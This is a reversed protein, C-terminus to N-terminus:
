NENIIEKELDYIMKIFIKELINEKKNNTPKEFRFSSIIFNTSEGMKLIQKFIGSLSLLSDKMSDGFEYNISAYDPSYNIRGTKKGKLFNNLKQPFLIGQSIDCFTLSFRGEYRNLSSNFLSDDYLLGKIDVNNFKLGRIGSYFINFYEFISNSFDCQILNSDNIVLRKFYSYSFNLHILNLNNYVLDFVNNEMNIGVFLERGWYPVTGYNYNWNRILEFLYTADLNYNFFKKNEIENVIINGAILALWKDIENFNRKFKHISMLENKFLITHNSPEDLMYVKSSELIKKCLIEIKNIEKQTIPFDNIIDDNLKNKSFIEDEYKEFWKTNLRTSYLKKNHKNIAMSSLLPILLERKAFVSKDNSDGLACEKLLVLLGKLFDITQDTPLGISLRIRAEEVDTSEEIAYKIIVKLYYEALLIEAFSQHQFHLTNEKEGLYSHSLFHVSEIDKFDNLVKRDDRDIEKGEITRCIDAKTLSTQEGSQRKYQWLLASAHLINRYVFEDELCVSKCDDKHKADRTLQNLFSIYVGVKGFDIFNSNSIILKYIMYAFIPRKLESEKLVKNYLEKYLDIKNRKTIRTFIKNSFGSFDKENKLNLALYNNLAFEIYNDFQEKKFGYVSIYNSTYEKSKSENIKSEKIEIKYPKYKTIQEKLGKAIPRSAIIIRNLRQNISDINQIEKIDKIVKDINTESLEGCEDLSDVLFFYNKKKFYDDKIDIQFRFSLYKALAGLSTSNAYKDYENLNIYVPFLGEHTKLYQQALKSALNHLFSTKGKGFDAILFLINNLYGENSNKYSDFYEEILTDVKNLNSEFKEIEKLEKLEKVSKSYYYQNKESKDNTDEDILGYGRIDQWTGFTDQYKLEEGEVFGLKALNKMYILLNKENERIWKGKTDDIHKLFNDHGFTNVICKPINLNFDKVFLDMIDENIGSLLFIKTITEKIFKIAPHNNSENILPFDSENIKENFDKFSNKLTIAFAEKDLSSNIEDKIVLFSNLAQNFGAKMYTNFGLNKFKDKKENEYNQSFTTSYKSLLLQLLDKAENSIGESILTKYTTSDISNILNSFGYGLRGDSEWIELSLLSHKKYVYQDELLKCIKEIKTIPKLTKIKKAIDVRDIVNKNLDFEFKGDVIKAVEKISANQYSNQKEILNYIYIEDFKEYFKGKVYEELTKKIKEINNISTIQFAIKNTKTCGITIHEDTALDIGPYNAKETNLNILQTDFTINLIPILVDESIINIDYLKLKGNDKVENSAQLLLTTIKTILEHQKM